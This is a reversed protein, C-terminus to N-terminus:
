HWDGPVTASFEERTRRRGAGGRCRLWWAEGVAEEDEGLAHGVEPRYGHAYPDVAAGAIFGEGDVADGWKMSCMTKLPVVVREAWCNARSTSAMPPM